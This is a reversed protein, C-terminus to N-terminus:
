FLDDAVNMWKTLYVCTAPSVINGDACQEFVPCVGCPAESLGDFVSVDRCIKYSVDRMEGNALRATRVEEIREDYILTNVISMMEDPGLSVKAIGSEHVKDTIQQLTVVGKARIFQCVFTSLTDIFDHDFEQENYWPGGTIDRSPVLDYLMYLKKNKQSISKVAKVLHRSELTRIIKRITMEPLNTQMKIDRTWVGKNGSKEIEHLVARHEGSLGQMRESEEKTVLQYLVNSGQMLIKIRSEGMLRNICVPLKAYQDGFSKRVVDDGIPETSSALLDLFAKEHNM